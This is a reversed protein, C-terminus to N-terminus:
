INGRNDKLFRIPLEQTSLGACANLITGSELAPLNISPRHKTSIKKAESGERKGFLYVCIM